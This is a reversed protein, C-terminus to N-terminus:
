PLWLRARSSDGSPGGAMPDVGMTPNVAYSARAEHWKSPRVLGRGTHRSIFARDGDVTIVRIGPHIIDVPFGAPVAFYFLFCQSMADAWKLDRNFDGRDVKIEVGLLRGTKCICAVDLRRGNPLVYERMPKLAWKFLLFCVADAMEDAKTKRM